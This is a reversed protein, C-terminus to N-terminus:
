GRPRGLAHRRVRSGTPHHRTRRVPGGPDLHQVYDYPLASLFM